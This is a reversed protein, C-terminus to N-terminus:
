ASGVGVRALHEGAARQAMLLIIGAVRMLTQAAVATAGDTGGAPSIAEIAEVDIDRMGKEPAGDGAGDAAGTPAAADIGHAFTRGDGGVEGGLARM